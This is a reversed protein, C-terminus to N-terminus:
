RVVSLPWGWCGWRCRRDWWWKRRQHRMLSALPPLRSTLRKRERHGCQCVLSGRRGVACPMVVVVVWSGDSGRCPSGRRRRSVSAWQWPTVVVIVWLLRYAHVVRRCSSLSAVCITMAMADRRRVVRRRCTWVRCHHRMVRRCIVHRRRCASVRRMVRLLARHVVCRCVICSTSPRRIVRRRRQSASPWHWPTMVDVVCCRVVVHRRHHRTYGCVWQHYGQCLTGM